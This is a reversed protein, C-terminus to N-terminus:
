PFLDLRARITRLKERAVHLSELLAVVRPWREPGTAPATALDDNCGRLIAVERRLSAIEHILQSM